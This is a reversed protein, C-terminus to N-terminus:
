REWVVATVATKLARDSAVESGQNAVDGVAGQNDNAGSLGDTNSPSPVVSCSIGSNGAAANTVNTPLLLAPGTLVGSGTTTTNTAQNAGHVVATNGIQSNGIGIVDAQAAQVPGLVVGAAGAAAAVVVARKRVGARPLSWMAMSM